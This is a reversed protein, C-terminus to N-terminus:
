NTYQDSSPQVILDFFVTLENDAQVLGYLASPPSINYNTMQLRHSGKLRFKLQDADLLETKIPVTVKREVGAVELWGIVDFTYWHQNNTVSDASIAVPSEAKSLEFKIFRHDDAKLANYMDQNMRAKGCDLAFVRVRLEVEAPPVDIDSAQDSAKWAIRNDSVQGQGEINAAQCQYRSINTTGEIWLRSQETPEFTVSNLSQIASTLSVQQAGASPVLVAIWASLVFFVVSLSYWRDIETDWNRLLRKM